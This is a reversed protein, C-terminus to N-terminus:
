LSKWDSLQRRSLISNVLITTIMNYEKLYFLFYGEGKEGGSLASFALGHALQNEIIRLGRIFLISGPTGKVLSLIVLFPPPLLPRGLRDAEHGHPHHQFRERGRARGPRSIAPLLPHGAHGAGTGGPRVPGDPRQPGGWDGASCFWRAWSISVLYMHVRNKEVGCHVYLCIIQFM